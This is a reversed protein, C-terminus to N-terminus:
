GALRPSIIDGNNESKAQFTDPRCDTLLAMAPRFCGRWPIEQNSIGSVGACSTRCDELAFYHLFSRPLYNHQILKKPESNPVNPSRRVDQCVLRSARGQAGTGAAAETRGREYRSSGYLLRRDHSEKEAPEMNPKLNRKHESERHLM